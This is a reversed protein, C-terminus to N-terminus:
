QSSANDTTELPKKVDRMPFVPACSLPVIKGMEISLRSIKRFEGTDTNHVITCDSAPDEYVEIGSPHTM